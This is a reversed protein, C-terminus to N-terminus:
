EEILKIFEEKSAMDEEVVKVVYKWAKEVIAEEREKLLIRFYEALTEWLIVFEVEHYYLGNVKGTISLSCKTIIGRIDDAIEEESKIKPTTNM